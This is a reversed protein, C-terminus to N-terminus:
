PLSLIGQICKQCKVKDNHLAMHSGTVALCAVLPVKASNDAVLMVGVNQSMGGGGPRTGLLNCQHQRLLQSM